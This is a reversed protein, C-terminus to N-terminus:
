LKSLCVLICDTYSIKKAVHLCPKVKSIQKTCIKDTKGEFFYAKCYLKFGIVRVMRGARNRIDFKAILNLKAYLKTLALIFTM